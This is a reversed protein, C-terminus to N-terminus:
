INLHICICIVRQGGKYGSKVGGGGGGAEDLIFPFPHYIRDNIASRQVESYMSRMDSPSTYGTSIPTAVSTPTTRADQESGIFDIGLQGFQSSPTTKM